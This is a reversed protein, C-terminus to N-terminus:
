LGVFLSPHAAIGREACWGVFQRLREFQKQDYGGAVPEFDQWRLFFRICDLGMEALLDLDRRIEDAPWQQWMEVGCSTQWYNVGVPIYREGNKRFDGEPALTYTM